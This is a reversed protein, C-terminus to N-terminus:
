EQPVRMDDMKIKCKSSPLILRAHTSYLNQSLVLKFGSVGFLIFAFEWCKLIEEYYTLMM